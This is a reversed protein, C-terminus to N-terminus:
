LQTGVKVGNAAISAQPSWGTSSYLSRREGPVGQYSGSRKASNVSIRSTKVFAVQQEFSHSEEEALFVDDSDGPVSEEDRITVFRKGLLLHCLM